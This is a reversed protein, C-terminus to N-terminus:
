HFINRTIERLVFDPEINPAAFLKGPAWSGVYLSTPLCNRWHLISKCASLGLDKIELESTEDLTLKVAIPITCQFRM